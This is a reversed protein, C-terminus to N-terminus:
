PQDITVSHGKYTLEHPRVDRVMEKGCGHCKITQGM